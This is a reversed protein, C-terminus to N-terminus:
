ARGQPHCSYCAQSNYSYGSVGSHHSDTRARDHCAFCSFVKFNSSDPHCASCANGAHRGTAIPFYSHNFAGQDFSSDTARHCADCTTPFGAAVHNPDRANEYDSRHCGYCDRPTGAYVNNIHCETCDLTAHRGLLPYISNHNLSGQEFSSDTPRHCLECTTPFGAAAHNPDRTGEYDSRHCGYCDRPTGAYINNKHCEACDLTAHEGQLPFISNHNFSAQGFSADNPRHCLECTTPFGAAVHNPDDTGEYDERHCGYCDRPTGAYVNNKHCEACDLTAHQGQLPFISSHNFL